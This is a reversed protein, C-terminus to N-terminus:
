KYVVWCTAPLTNLNLLTAPSHQRCCQLALAPPPQTPSVEGTPTVVWLPVPPRCETGAQDQPLTLPGAARGLASGHACALAM